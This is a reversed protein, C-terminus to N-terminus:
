RGLGQCDRGIMSVWKKGGEVLWRWDHVGVKQKATKGSSKVMKWCSLCLSDM